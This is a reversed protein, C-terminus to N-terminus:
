YIEARQLFCFKQVKDTADNGTNLRFVPFAKDLMREYTASPPLYNYVEILTSIASKIQGQFGLGEFAGLRSNCTGSDGQRITKLELDVGSDERGMTVSGVTGSPVSSAFGFHNRFPHAKSIQDSRQNEELDGLLSDLGKHASGVAKFLADVKQKLRNRKDFSFSRLGHFAALPEVVEPPLDASLRLKVLDPRRDLFTDIVSEDVANRTGREELLRKLAQRKLMYPNEFDTFENVLTPRVPFLFSAPLCAPHCLPFAANGQRQDMLDLRIAQKMIDVFRDSLFDRVEWHAQLKACIEQYVEAKHIDEILSLTQAEETFNAASQLHDDMGKARFSHWELGQSQVSIRHAQLLLRRDEPRLMGYRRLLRSVLSNQAPDKVSDECGMHDSRQSTEETQKGRQESASAPLRESDRTSSSLARNRPVCNLSNFTLCAYGARIGQSGGCCSGSGRPALRRLSPASSRWRLLSLALASASRPVVSNLRQLAPSTATARPVRIDVNRIAAM